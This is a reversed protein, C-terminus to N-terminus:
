PPRVSTIHLPTDGKNQVIFDHSVTEGEPVAEFEFVPHEMVAKPLAFAKGTVVSLVILVFIIIDIKRRM